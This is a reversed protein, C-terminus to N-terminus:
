LQEENVYIIKSENKDIIHKKLSFFYGTSILFCRTDIKKITKPVIFAPNESVFLTVSEKSCVPFTKVSFEDDDIFVISFKYHKILKGFEKNYIRYKNHRIFFIVLLVVFVPPIIVLMVSAFLIFFTGAQLFIIISKTIKLIRGIFIYKRLFMYIEKFRTIFPLKSLHNVLYSFFSKHNLLESYHNKTNKM